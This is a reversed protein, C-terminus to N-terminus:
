IEGRRYSEIYDAVHSVLQSLLIGALVSWAVLAAVQIGQTNGGIVANINAGARYCALTLWVVHLTIKGEM